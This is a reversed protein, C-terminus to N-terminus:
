DAVFGYGLGNHAMQILGFTNVQIISKLDQLLKNKTAYKALEILVKKLYISVSETKLGAGNTYKGTMCVLVACLM